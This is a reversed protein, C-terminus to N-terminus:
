WARLEVMKSDDVICVFTKAAEAIVKERTLAAGGGKILNKFTDVEDAGDVYLPIDGVANLDFVPIGAAKLKATSDESSSM